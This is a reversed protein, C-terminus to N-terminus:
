NTRIALVKDVQERTSAIVGVADSNELIWAIQDANLTPYIPVDVAGASIIALDAISWEFRTEALIAVHENEELGLGILGRGLHSVRQRFFKHSYPRYAGNEKVMVADPKDFKECAEFFLHAISQTM